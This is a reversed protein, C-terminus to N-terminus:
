TPWLDIPEDSFRALQSVDDLSAWYRVVEAAAIFCRRCCAVAPYGADAAIALETPKECGVCRNV